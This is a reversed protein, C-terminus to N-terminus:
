QASLVDNLNHHFPMEVSIEIFFFTKPFLLADFPKTHKYTAWNFSKQITNEQKLALLLKSNSLM